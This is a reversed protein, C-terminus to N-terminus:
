YGHGHICSCLMVSFIISLFAALELIYGLLRPAIKQRFVELSRETAIAERVFVALTVAAFSLAGRAVVASAAKPCCVRVGIILLVMTVGSVIFYRGIATLAADGGFISVFQKAPSTLQVCDAASCSYVHALTCVPKGCFRM